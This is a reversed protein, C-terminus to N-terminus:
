VVSVLLWAAAVPLILNDAGWTLIHEVATVALSLLLISSIVMGLGAFYNVSVILGLTSVFFAVSGLLTKNTYGVLVKSKFSGGVIAAVTDSVGLILMAAVYVPASPAILASGAVGLPFFVEGYSKRGVQFLSKPIGLKRAILMVFVFSSSLLAIEQLSLVALLAIAAISGLLHVFKRASEKHNLGKSLIDGLFLPSSAILIGLLWRM